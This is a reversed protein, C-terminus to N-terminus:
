PGTAEPRSNLYLREVTIPQGLRTSQVSLTVRYAVPREDPAPRAADLSAKFEEAFVPASTLVYDMSEERGIPLRGRREPTFAWEIGLRELLSEAHLVGLTAYRARDSRKLATGWISYLTGLLAIAVAFAVIVEVLTFGSARTRIRRPRAGLGEGRAASTTPPEGRV